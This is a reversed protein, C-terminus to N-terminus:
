RFRNNYRYVSSIKRRKRKQEVMKAYVKICFLGMALILSIGIIKGIGKFFGAFFNPKKEVDNKAILNITYDKNYIHYTIKGLIDGATIPATINEDIEITEEFKTYLDSRNITTVLDTEAIIDVTNADKKAGDVEITDVLTGAEIIKNSVLEDFGFDLLTKADTYRYSVGSDSQTAGLIVCILSVNDKTASAVLCNKAASTYGTKLGTAYPYYYNKSSNTSNPIILQNSNLFYRDDSSYKNTAPLRFHSTAVIDRFVPFNDMAYKAFIALDYACSYHEEEHLGNANVFHTNKAGLEKARTNMMTAFSEISGGIYEALVNAADNGSCILLAKLLNEITLEEDVQIDAISGGSPVSMIAAYSAKAVEDLECNELTLIATLIKTTSAPYASEYANKEYLIRGTDADILIAKPSNVTVALITSPILFSIILLFLFVFKKM